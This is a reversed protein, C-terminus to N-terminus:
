SIKRIVLTNGGRKRFSSEWSNPKATNKREPDFETYPLERVQHRFRPPQNGVTGM